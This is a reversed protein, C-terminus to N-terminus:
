VHARGIQVDSKLKNLHEVRALSDKDSAALEEKLRALEEILQRARGRAEVTREDVASIANRLKVLNDKGERVDEELLKTESTLAGTVKQEDMVTDHRMLLYLLITAGFGCSMVDLFSMSFVSFERRRRRM